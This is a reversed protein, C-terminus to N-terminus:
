SLDSEILARVPERCNSPFDHQKQARERTVLADKCEWWFWWCDACAWAYPEPSEHMPPLQEKIGLVKRANELPGLCEECVHASLASEIDALAEMALELDPSEVSPDHCGCGCGYSERCLSFSVGRHKESM